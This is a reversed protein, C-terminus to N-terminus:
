GDHSSREEELAFAAANTEAEEQKTWHIKDIRDIIAQRVDAPVEPLCKNIVDDFEWENVPSRAM